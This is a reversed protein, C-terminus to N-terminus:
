VVNQLLVGCWWFLVTLNWLTWAIHTGTVIAHWMRLNHISSIAELYPPYSCIYQILLLLCGILPLGGAQINPLLEEGYFVLKNRFTVCSLPTSEQSCLLPGEPEM